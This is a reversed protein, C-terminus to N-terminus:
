TPLIWIVAFYDTFEQNRDIVALAGRVNDAVEVSARQEVWNSFAADILGGAQM